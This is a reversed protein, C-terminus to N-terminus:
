EFDDYGSGMAKPRMKTREIPESIGGGDKGLGGGKEYGMEHLLKAGIGRTHKEFAGVVEDPEGDTPAAELTATPQSPEPAGVEGGRTFWRDM